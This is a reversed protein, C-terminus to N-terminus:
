FDDKTGTVPQYEEQTEKRYSNGWLIIQVVSVIVARCMDCCGCCKSGKKERDNLDIIPIAQETM